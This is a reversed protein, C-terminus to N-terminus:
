ERNVNSKWVLLFTVPSTAIMGDFRIRFLIAPNMVCKIFRITL